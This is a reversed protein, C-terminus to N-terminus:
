GHGGLITVQDPTIVAIVYGSAERDVVGRVRVSGCFAGLQARTFAARDQAAIELRVRGSTDLAYVAPGGERVQCWKVRGQVTVLQGAHDPVQATPVSPPQGADIVSDDLALRGAVYTATPEVTPTPKVIAPQSGTAATACAALTLGAVGAAITAFARCRPTLARTSQRM